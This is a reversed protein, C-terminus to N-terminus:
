RGKFKEIEEEIRVEEMFVLLGSDLFCFEFFRGFDVKYNILRGVRMVFVSGWSIKWGLNIVVGKM